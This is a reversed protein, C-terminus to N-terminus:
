GWMGALLDLIKTARAVDPVHLLRDLEANLASRDPFGLEQINQLESASFFEDLSNFGQAKHDAKMKELLPTHAEPIDKYWGGTYLQAHAVRYADVSARGALIKEEDVM